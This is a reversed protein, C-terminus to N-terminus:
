GGSAVEHHHFECRVGLTELTAVMEARLNALSDGPPVPFYGEKHRLKYGLNPQPNARSGTNWFGERSDIESQDKQEYAIHDFVFFEAEPGFYAADAFGSAILHREAQQAVYRPDRAYPEGQVPDAVSCILSLTTRDYYPDIFGTSADPILLMDSKDIEQFGRISSGDFGVGDDFDEPSVAGIPLSIHQWAGPLDVFKLDIMEVGRELAWDLLEEAGDVEAAASAYSEHDRISM